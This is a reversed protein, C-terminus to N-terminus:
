PGRWERPCIRHWRMLMGEVVKRETVTIRREEDETRGVSVSGIGEREVVAVANHLWGNRLDVRKRVM